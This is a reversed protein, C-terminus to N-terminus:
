VVTCLYLVACHASVISSGLPAMCVPWFYFFHTPRSSRTTANPTSCPLMYQIWTAETHKWISGHAWEISGDVNSPEFRAHWLSFRVRFIIRVSGCLSNNTLVSPLSSLVFLSSSTFLQQGRLRISIYKKLRVHVGYLSTWAPAISSKTPEAQTSKMTRNLVLPARIGQWGFKWLSWCFVAVTEKNRQKKRHTFPVAQIGPKSLDTGQRMYVYM